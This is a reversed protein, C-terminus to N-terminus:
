RSAEVKFIEGAGDGARCPAVKAKAGAGTFTNFAAECLGAAPANSAAATAALLFRCGEGGDPFVRETECFAVEDCADDEAGRPRVKVLGFTGTVAAL